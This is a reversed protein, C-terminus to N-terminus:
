GACGSLHSNCADSTFSTPRLGSFMQTAMLQQSWPTIAPNATLEPEPRWNWRVFSQIPEDHSWHLCCFARAIAPRRNPTLDKQAELRRGMKHANRSFCTTAIFFARHRDSERYIPWIRKASGMTIPLHSSSMVASVPFASRQWCCAQTGVLQPISRDM